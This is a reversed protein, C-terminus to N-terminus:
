IRFKKRKEIEQALQNNIFNQQHNAMQNKVNPLKRGAKTLEVYTEEQEVAPESVPTPEKKPQPATEIPKAQVETQSPKQQQPQQPQKQDM